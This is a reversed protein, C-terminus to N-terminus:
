VRSLLQIVLIQSKLRRILSQVQTRQMALGIRLWQVVLSTGLKANKFNLEWCRLKRM